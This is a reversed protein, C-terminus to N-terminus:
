EPIDESVPEPEAGQEVGPEEEALPENAQDPTSEPVSEIAQDPADEPLPELTPEPTPEKTPEPTPTAEPETAEDDETEAPEEPKHHDTMVLEQNMEFNQALDIQEKFVLSNVGNISIQVKDVECNRIISNVISYIIVVPDIQSQALGLSDGLNVYCVRDQSTVSLIQTDAPLTAYHGETKPGRVLREVIAWELSQNSSYYISRGEPLLMHGNVDTFYLTVDKNIYNNVQKAANEVFTNASMRGVLQGNADVLPEGEVDFFVYSVDPLQTLTRVYGSHILIEAFKELQYYGASFNLIVMNNAFSYDLLTVYEPLLSVLDKQGPNQSLKDLCFAVAEDTSMGELSVEVRQLRLSDASRYYLYCGDAPKVDTNLGCGDLTLLGILLSMTLLLSLIRWTASRKRENRM